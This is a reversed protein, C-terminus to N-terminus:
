GYGVVGRGATGTPAAATMARNVDEPSLGRQRWRAYAMQQATDPANAFQSLNTQHPAVWPTGLVPTTPGGWAGFEAIRGGGALQAGYVDGTPVTTGTGATAQAPLGTQFEPAGVPLGSETTRAQQGAMWAAYAGYDMPRWWREAATIREQGEIERLRM